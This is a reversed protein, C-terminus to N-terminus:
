FGGVGLTSHYVLCLAKFVLAIRLWGRHAHWGRQVDPGGTSHLRRLTALAGRLVVLQALAV